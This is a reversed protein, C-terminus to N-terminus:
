KDFEKAIYVRLPCKCFYRDGFSLSFAKSEPEEELCELFTKMGIDRAKCLESFGSKYCQFNNPCSMKRRIEEIESKQEEALEMCNNGSKFEKEQLFRLVALIDVTERHTFIM